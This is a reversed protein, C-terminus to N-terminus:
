YEHRIKKEFLYKAPSHTQAVLKYGYANLKSFSLNMWNLIDPSYIYIFDAKGSVISKRQEMLMDHTAGNQTFWYKCAPLANAKTGIGEDMGVIILKPSKKKAVIDSFRHYDQRDVSQRFSLNDRLALTDDRMLNFYCVFFFCSIILLCYSLRKKYHIKDVLFIVAYVLFPMTIIFYYLWLNHHIAIAFFFVFGLIPFFKHEKAEVSYLWLLLMSIFFFSSRNPEILMYLWEAVYIKFPNQYSVTQLTNFFYEHVFASLNGEILFYVLFPLAVVTIGIIFYLLLSGVDKYRGHYCLMVTLYLPFYLQMVATSFKILFLSIFCLGLVFGTRKVPGGGGNSELLIATVYISIVVFIMCYEEAEVAYQTYWEFFFPVSMLVTGVFCKRLDRNYINITKFVYYGMVSYMLCNILFIGLYIKPSLLYGLGYILWLLPGKSDAFDVYPVLGNMWAKGAMFFISEDIRMNLDHTVSDPSIIFLLVCYYIACAFFVKKKERGSVTALSNDMNNM